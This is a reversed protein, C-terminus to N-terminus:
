NNMFHSDGVGYVVEWNMNYCHVKLESESIVSMLLSDWFVNDVALICCADLFGV